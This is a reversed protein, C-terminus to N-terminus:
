SFVLLPRKHGTILIMGEGAEPDRDFAPNNYAFEGNAARTAGNTVEPESKKKTSLGAFSLSM